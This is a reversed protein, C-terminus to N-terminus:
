GQGKGGEGGRGGHPGPEGAEGDGGKGGAWWDRVSDMLGGSVAPKGGRGGRAIIQRDAKLWCRWANNDDRGRSNLINMGEKIVPKEGSEIFFDEAGKVTVPHGNLNKGNLNRIAKRATAPDDYTVIGEHMNIGTTKDKILRMLAMHQGTNGGIKITGVKSFFKVFDEGELQEDPVQMIVTDRSDDM